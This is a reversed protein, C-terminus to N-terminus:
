KKGGVVGGDDGSSSSSRRGLLDMTLPPHISAAEAAAALFHHSIHLLAKKVHQSYLELKPLPILIGKPLLHLSTSFIFPSHFEPVTTSYPTYCATKSFSSALPPPLPQHSSLM